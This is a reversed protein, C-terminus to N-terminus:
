YVPLTKVLNMYVVNGTYDALSYTTTDFVTELNWMLAEPAQSLTTLYQTVRITDSDMEDWAGFDDYVRCTVNVKGVQDPSTWVTVSADDPDFM